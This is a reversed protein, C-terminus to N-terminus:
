VLGPINIVLVVGLAWPTVLKAGFPLFLSLLYFSAFIGVPSHTVFALIRNEGILKPLFFWKGMLWAFLWYAIFPAISQPTLFALALCLFTAVTRLIQLDGLSVRGSPVPREPFFKQDTDADKFEDSIRYYLIMLAYTLTGIIIERWPLGPRPPPVVLLWTLITM